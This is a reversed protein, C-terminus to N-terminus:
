TGEQSSSQLTNVFPPPGHHKRRTGAGAGGKGNKAMSNQIINQEVLERIEQSSLNIENDDDEDSSSSSDDDDNGAGATNDYDFTRTRPHHSQYYNPGDETSTSASTRDNDPATITIESAASTAVAGILRRVRVHDENEHLLQLYHQCTVQRTITIALFLLLSISGDVSVM